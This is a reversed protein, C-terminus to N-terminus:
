NDYKADFNKIKSKINNLFREFLSEGGFKNSQAQHYKRDNNVSGLSYKKQQKKEKIIDYLLQFVSRNKLGRIFLIFLSTCIVTISIIKIKIVFNTSWIILGTSVTMLIAEIWNQIGIGLFTGKKIVNPPIIITNDENSM